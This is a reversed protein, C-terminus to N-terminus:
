GRVNRLWRRLGPIQLGARLARDRLGAWPAPLTVLRGLRVAQRVTAEVHPRREAEYADLGDLVGAFIIAGIALEWRGDIAMRAGTLGFCLALATIANPAIARFAIGRTARPEASM